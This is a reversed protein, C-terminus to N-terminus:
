CLREWACLNILSMRSMVKGHCSRHGWVQKVCGIARMKRQHKFTCRKFPRERSAKGEVSKWGYARPHQLGSVRAWACPKQTESLVPSRQGASEYWTLISVDSFGQKLLVYFWCWMLLRVPRAPAAYLFVHYRKIPRFHDVGVNAATASSMECASFRVQAGSSCTENHTWDRRTCLVWACRGSM